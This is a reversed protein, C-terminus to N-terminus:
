NFPLLNIIYIAEQIADTVENEKFIVNENYDAEIRKDFLSELRSAALRFETKLGKQSKATRRLEKFVLVHESLGDKNQFKGTEYNFERTKFSPYNLELWYKAHHFAAYYVRGIITRYVCQFKNNSVLDKNNLLNQSFKVFYDFEFSNVM